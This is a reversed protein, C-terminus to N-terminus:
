DGNNLCQDGIHLCKKFHKNKACCRNKEEQWNAISLRQRSIICRCSFNMNFVRTNDPAIVHCQSCPQQTHRRTLSNVKHQSIAFRVGRFLGVFDEIIKIKNTAPRNGGPRYVGTFTNHQYIGHVILLQRLIVNHCAKFLHTKIRVVDYIDNHRMRMTIM